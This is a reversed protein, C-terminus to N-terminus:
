VAVAYLINTLMNEQEELCEPCHHHGPPDSVIGPTAVTAFCLLAAQVM